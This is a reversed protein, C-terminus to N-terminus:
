TSSTLHEFFKLNLSHSHANCHLSRFRLCSAHRHLWGFSCPDSSIWHISTFKEAYTCFDVYMCLLSFLFSWSCYTAAESLINEIAPPGTTKNQLYDIFSRTTRLYSPSPSPIPYKEHLYRLALQVNWNTKKSLLEIIKQIILWRQSMETKQGSVDRWWHAAWNEELDRVSLCGNLGSMWEEWIELLSLSGILQLSYIPLWEDSLKWSGYKVWEYQHQQTRNGFKAKLLRIADIQCTHEHSCNSLTGFSLHLGHLDQPWKALESGVAVTSISLATPHPFQADPLPSPTNSPLSLAVPSLSEQSPSSAPVLYQSQPAVPPSPRSLYVM